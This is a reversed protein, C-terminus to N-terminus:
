TTGTIAERDTTDRHGNAAYAKYREALEVLRRQVAGNVTDEPFRGTADPEGADHGTLLSMGEDVTSVSYVHFQGNEVADVVDERLMLHKENAAPILVGQTGTFGRIRCVDFFGEIKENVGGIAQIYGRQNVSGTVAVDQRLPLGSLSSLLAYLETSSASDGDVTEYVQEFAIHASLVLPVDAAYRGGLYGALILAGKNHIKGGLDSERDISVVGARGVYTRATVRSPKGFAYDALMLVSLGNVQGVAEGGTDILITEEAILERLREEIRNARYIREDIARQVDTGAVLGNGHQGAWYCAQRVLDVVDGFKTALKGRHAVMRAGYEVIKAVGSPDFHMLDEEACITGIFEGYKRATEDSWEMQVAFDAKVKFLERFDEDINYILYYLMPDGVLIVKVDLPIPEPELTRTTIASFAQGMSEIAIEANKLARKMVHWGFPRTLLDMAEIMLYGGNAKHLAGPRIMRYNTVLTGFQGIHEIRGSLNPYTPNRELVVPAGTLGSNDVILNARYEDFSPKQEGGQLMAMPNAAGEPQSEMQKLQKFASVNDLINERVADLFELVADFPDYTERLANILHNVAFGVVQRDLERLREKAEQQLKQSKRMTERLKGQLEQQAQHIEDQKSEDLQSVQDSTMAEGDAVPALVIGRPTQMLRFSRQDAENELAKFLDHRRQQFERELREREKEYQDGDFAAPVETQLEEVLRDMDKRFERGRGAPLRVATPKDPNQFNNVYLWDDPTDKTEADHDLFKKVTTTKGTGAPGMAYMHYGPSKIDIGFSVSRLARDQGIVTELRPLEETSTFDFADPNCVRRLTHPALAEPKQSM